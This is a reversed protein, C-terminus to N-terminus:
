ENALKLSDLDDFFRPYSKNVAEADSIMIPERAATAVVALAMAIRHDQHSDTTAALIQTGGQITMSNQHLSIPIGLKEFEIKLTEARNSEKYFLREIGQIVTEGPCYAALAVIPPFLDPCHTADFQFPRLQDKIVRICEPQITVQAGALELVKLIDKDAQYSHINLGTVTIDGLIAAAVFLFSASSWDGEVTFDIEKKEKKQPTISFLRYDRHVVRYGFEQLLQLTIDIYPKSSLHSVEIETSKTAAHALSILLGTLFQSSLSGDVKINKPQMPGQVEIPLKGANTKIKVQLQPLTDEFFYMPRKTLSGSGTITMKKSSLAAISTFMRMSLGSEGCDLIQSIPHIGTSVIEICAGPLYKINAGLNKIIALAAKDDASNGANHIRTIGTHLLALACARQMVSKSAPAQLTGSIYGPRISIKM